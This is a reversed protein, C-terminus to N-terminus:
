GFLLQLICVSPPLFFYRHHVGNLTTQRGCHKITSFSRSRVVQIRCNTDCYATSSLLYCTLQLLVFHQLCLCFSFQVLVCRRIKHSFEIMWPIVSAVGRVVQEMDYLKACYVPQCDRQPNVAFESAPEYDSQEFDQCVKSRRHRLLPLGHYSKSHRM